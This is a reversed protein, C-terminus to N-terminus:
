EQVITEYRNFGSFIGLGGQINSYMPFPESFLDDTGIGDLNPLRKLRDYYIYLEPTIVSLATYVTDKKNIYYPYYVTRKLIGGQNEDDKVAEFRSFYNINNNTTNRTEVMYYDVSAGPDQWQAHVRFLNMDDPDPSTTFTLSNNAHPVTTTAEAYKGDPTSVSLRYSAGVTIHVISSDLVYRKYLADYPLTWSDSGSSIVVTANTVQEYKKFADPNNYIPVTTSVSVMILEDQPSIFSSVVLKTEVPPIKVDVNKICSVFGTIMIFYSFFATKKM